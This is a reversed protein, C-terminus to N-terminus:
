FSLKRPEFLHWFMFKLQNKDEMAPFFMYGLFLLILASVLMPIKGFIYIGMGFITFVAKLYYFPVGFVTKVKMLSNFFIIEEDMNLGEKRLYM